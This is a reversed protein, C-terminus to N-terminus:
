TRKLRASAFSQLPEGRAAIDTAWLLDGQVLGYLRAAANYEQASATRLVADTSLEAKAGTVQGLYVEIVGDPHAMLLEVGTVGQDDTGSVRWYGTEAESQEVNNGEADILWTRSSHLLFPRGDHSITLEQAFRSEPVGPYGLVGVGAWTGILWALPILPTPLDADLQVPM